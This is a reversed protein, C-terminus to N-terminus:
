TQTHRHERCLKRYMTERNPNITALTIAQNCIKWQNELKGEHKSTLAHLQM